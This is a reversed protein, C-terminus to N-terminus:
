RSAGISTGLLAEFYKLAAPTAGQENKAAAMRGGAGAPKAGSLQPGKMAKLKDMTARTIVPAVKATQAKVGMTALQAIQQDLPADLNVRNEWAFRGYSAKVANLEPSAQCNADILATFQKQRTMDELREDLDNLQAGIGVYKEGHTENAIAKAQAEDVGDGTLRAIQANYRQEIGKQQQVLTERQRTFQSTMTSINHTIKNWQLAENQPVTGPVTPGQPAIPATQTPDVLGLKQTVEGFLRDFGAQDGAKALMDAADIKAKLLPDAQIRANIEVMEPSLADVQPTADITQGGDVAPELGTLAEAGLTEEAPTNLQADLQDTLADPALSM